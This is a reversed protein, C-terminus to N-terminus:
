RVNEKLGGVHVGVVLDSLSSELLKTPPSGVTCPVGNLCKSQVEEKNHLVLGSVSGSCRDSVADSGSSSISSGGSGICVIVAEV